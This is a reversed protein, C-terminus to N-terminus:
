HQNLRLFAPQQLKELAVWICRGNSGGQRSRFGPWWTKICSKCALIIRIVHVPTNKFMFLLVHQKEGWWHGFSLHLLYILSCSSAVECWILPNFSPDRTLSVCCLSPVHGASPTENLGLLPCRRDPAAWCVGVSYVPLPHACSCIHPVVGECMVALSSIMEKGMEPLTVSTIILALLAPPNPHHALSFPNLSDSDWECVTSASKTRNTKM